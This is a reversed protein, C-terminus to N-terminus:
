AIMKGGGVALVDLPRGDIQGGLNICDPADFGGRLGVQSFPDMAEAVPAEFETQVPVHQAHIPHRDVFALFPAVAESDDARGAIVFGEVGAVFLDGLEEVAVAVQGGKGAVVTHLAM